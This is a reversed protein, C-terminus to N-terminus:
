TTLDAVGRLKRLPTLGHTGWNSLLCTVARLRITVARIVYVLLKWVWQGPSLWVTCMSCAVLLAVRDADNLAHRCLLSLAQELCATVRHWCKM